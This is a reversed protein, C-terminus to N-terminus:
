PGITYHNARSTKIRWVGTRSRTPGLKKSKKKKKRVKNKEEKPNEQKKQKQKQTHKKNTTQKHKNTNTTYVSYKAKAEKTQHVGCFQCPTEFVSDM